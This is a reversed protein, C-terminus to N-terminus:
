GDALGRRRRTDDDLRAQRTRMYFCYLKIMPAAPLNEPLLWYNSPWPSHPGEFKKDTIAAWEDEHRLHGPICQGDFIDFDIRADDHFNGIHVDHDDADEEWESVGRPILKLGIELHLHGRTVAEKVLGMLILTASQEALDNGGDEKATDLIDQYLSAFAGDECEDTAAIARMLWSPRERM